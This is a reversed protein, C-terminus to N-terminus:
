VGVGRGSVIVVAWMDVHIGGSSRYQRGESIGMTVCKGDMVERHVEGEDGSVKGSSRLSTWLSVRVKSDNM